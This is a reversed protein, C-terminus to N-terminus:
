EPIILDRINQGKLEGAVASELKQLIAEVEPLPTRIEPPDEGRPSRILQIIERVSIKELDRGPLYGPPNEGSPIILAGEELTKLVPLIFDAPLGLEKQLHVLTGPREGSYFNRALILMISLALKERFAGTLTARSHGDSLLDPHQALYSVKAGALLISFAWYLWILFLVLTAFGSYIASYQASTIVFKTFAWGTIFWLAGSFLGGALASKFRVKTNPLFMYVFAFASSVMLYPVLKEGYHLVTGLPGILLGKKFVFKNTFSAGFSVASFMVVPGILLMSIYNTFRKAFSRTKKIHWIYNLSSEIKQILSIVTYLLMVLGISGLVSGKTNEVFQIVTMSLETGRDGMPELLYFLLIELKTHINFAKLVSFSVAILPVLSLLTTYVLSMARMTTEGATLEEVLLHVFRASKIFISKRGGAPRSHWLYNQYSGKIKKAIM